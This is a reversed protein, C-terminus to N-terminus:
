TSVAQATLDITPGVLTLVRESVPTSPVRQAGDREVAAVAVWSDLAEGAVDGEIEPSRGLLDNLNCADIVRWARASPARVTL